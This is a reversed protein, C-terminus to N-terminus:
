IQTLTNDGRDEYERGDNTVYRKGGLLDRVEKVEEREGNEYEIYIKERERKIMEKAIKTAFPTSVFEGTSRISILVGWVAMPVSPVALITIIAWRPLDLGFGGM